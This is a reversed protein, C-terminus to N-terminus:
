AGFLWGKELISKVVDDLQEEEPFGVGQQKEEEMYILAHEPQNPIWKKYIALWLVLHAELQYLYYALKRRNGTGWMHAKFYDDERVWKLLLEYIPHLMNETITRNIGHQAKANKTMGKYAASFLPGYGM